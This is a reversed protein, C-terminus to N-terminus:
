RRKFEILLVQETSNKVKFREDLRMGAVWAIRKDCELIWTSDKQNIPIKQDIFYKSLKKKKMGMGLPYFYDGTRWKRLLLPFSINKADLIAVNPDPNIKEPKKQISFSFHGAETEIACPVGEVLVVDADVSLRPTIILFDRDKIIRHTESDVFKGSEANMIQKIFPLLAPTFGYQSFLEYCITNLPQKKKLKLIPIYIDKVRRETLQKLEQEIARKYIIEAEAIRHITENVQMVPDDFWKEAVPIIHHRVANRLYNDSANSADERYPVKNEAAYQEIDSRKAFLLPRIIPGNKEKIGHLGSIGTGRFLNMLLTEANDNAHHATALKSYSNAVRINDLWEYRLIRATEQTGKKWEESKAKTDFRVNYFPINKANAWDKVLQEDKDAEEGRLQFNCHAVAFPIQSTYFLHAMAMSDIGGSVALLITEDAQAFAKQKWDDKFRSLLDM